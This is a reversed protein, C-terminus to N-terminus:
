INYRKMLESWRNTKNLLYEIIEAVAGHGAPRTAVYHAAARVQEPAQPVTAAFAVRTLVPLDVIDDGVCATQSLTFGGAELLSEFAPLKEKCGQMVYKVGLEKARIETAATQRGSLIATVLGARHWMTIRHGDLVNFRKSESGDSHIIIGGDTLVGDVDLILLRIDNLDPAPLTM